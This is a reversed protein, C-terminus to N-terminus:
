SIHRASEDSMESVGRLIRGPKQPLALENPKVGDVVPKTTNALSAKDDHGPPHVHRDLQVSHENACGYRRVGRAWMMLKSKLRAFSSRQKSWRALVVDGITSHRQPDSSSPLVRLPVEVGEQIMIRDWDQSQAVARTRERNAVVVIRPAVDQASDLLDVPQLAADVLKVNGQQM